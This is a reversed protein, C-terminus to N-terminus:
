SEKYRGVEHVIAAIASSVLVFSMIDIWEHINWFFLKEELFSRLLFAASVLFMWWGCIFSYASKRPLLDRGLEYAVLLPLMYLMLFFLRGMLDLIWYSDDESGM